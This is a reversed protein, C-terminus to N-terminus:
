TCPHSYKITYSKGEATFRMFGLYANNPEKPFDKLEKGNSIINPDNRPVYRVVGNAAVELVLDEMLNDDYGTDVYIKTGDKSIGIPVNDAPMQWKRLSKKLTSDVLEVEDLVFDKPRRVRIPKDDALVTMEKDSVEFIPFDFGCGCPHDYGTDIIQFTESKGDTRKLEYRFRQNSRGSLQDEFAQKNAEAIECTSFSFDYGKETILANGYAALKEPSINPEARKRKVLEDTGSPRIVPLSQASIQQTGGAIAVVLFVSGLLAANDNM